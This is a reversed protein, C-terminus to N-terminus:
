ELERKLYPMFDDSYFGRQTMFNYVKSLLEQKNNSQISKLKKACLVKACDMYATQNIEDLALEINPSEIGKSILGMRIKQKGWQNYTFKGYAFSKAYSLNDFFGEKELSELLSKENQPAGNLQKYKLHVDKYCRAQYLCYRQLKYSLNETNQKSM